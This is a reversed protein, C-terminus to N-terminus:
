SKRLSNIQRWKGVEEMQSDIVCFHCVREGNVFIEVIRGLRSVKLTDGDKLEVGLDKLCWETFRYVTDGYIEYWYSM